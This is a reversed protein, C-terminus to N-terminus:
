IDALTQKSKATTAKQQVFNIRVLLSKVWHRSLEMHRGFEIIKDKAYKM